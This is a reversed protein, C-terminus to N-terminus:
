AGRGGKRTIGARVASAASAASHAKPVESAGSHAKPVESAGRPSFRAGKLPMLRGDLTGVVGFGEVEVEVPNERDGPLRFGFGKNGAKSSSELAARTVPVGIMLLGVVGDDDPGILAAKCPVWEISEIRVTTWESSGAATNVAKPKLLMAM